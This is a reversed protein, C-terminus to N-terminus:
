GGFRGGGGFSSRAASSSGFGSRSITIARAPPATNGAKGTVKGLRDSAVDGNPKLYDGSRYDRYLPSSGGIRYYGGGGTRCDSQDPNRRCDERRSNVLDSAVYGLLFGTMPPIWNPQGLENTIETCQGFQENCQSSSEFRPAIREHELRARDYEARCELPAVETQLDCDHADALVQGTPASECGALAAPIAVAMLTLRLNSSRKM